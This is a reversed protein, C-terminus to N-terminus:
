ESLLPKQSDQAPRPLGCCRDANLVCSANRRTLEAALNNFELSSPCAGAHASAVFGSMVEVVNQANQAPSVLRNGAFASKEFPTERTSHKDRAQRPLFHDSVHLTPSLFHFFSSSSWTQKGDLLVGVLDRVGASIGPLATVQLFVGSERKKLRGYTQGSGTKTFFTM